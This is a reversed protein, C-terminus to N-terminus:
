RLPIDEDYLDYRFSHKAMELDSLDDFLCDKSDLGYVWMLEYDTSPQDDVAMIFLHLRNLCTKNGYCYKSMNSFYESQENSRFSHIENAKTNIIVTGIM